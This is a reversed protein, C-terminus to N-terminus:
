HGGCAPCGPRREVAVECCSWDWLSVSLLGKRLGEGGLALKMAEASELAAIVAVVQNLVGATEPTAYSGPEPGRPMLCRLCPGGPLVNMTVGSDALVGGYIWPLGLRLCADNILLRAEFNDTGDLM